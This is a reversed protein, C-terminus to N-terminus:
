TARDPRMRQDFNRKPSRVILDGGGRLRGSVEVRLFVPTTGDDQTQNKFDGQRADLSEAVVKVGPQTVLALESGLGLDVDLEVTDVNIVAETFDLRVNAAAISVEIRRPVVWPGERVVNGFRRDIRMLDATVTDPEAAAATPLDTTLAALEKFVVAARAAESRSECEDLTLRGEAYAEQLLQVVQDRDTNSVRM